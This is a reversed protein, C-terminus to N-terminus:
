EVIFGKGNFKGVEGSDLIYREGVKLRKVDVRGNAGIPPRKAGANRDFSTSSPKAGFGLIGSSGPTVEIMGSAEAQAAARELAVEFTLTKNEKVMQRATEAVYIAARSVAPDNKGASSMPGNRLVVEAAKIEQEKPLNSAGGTDGGAKRLHRRHTEHQADRVAQLKIKEANQSATIAARRERGSEEIQQQELRAKDAYQMAQDNLMQIIDPDYGNVELMDIIENPIVESGSSDNLKRARKIQFELESQNMVSGFISSVAQAGKTIREIRDTQNQEDRRIIESEKNDIETAAKLMDSAAEPFGAAAFKRGYFRLPDANSEISSGIGEADIKPTRRQGIAALEAAASDAVEQRRQEQELEFQATSAQQEMLKAQATQQMRTTFSEMGELGIKSLDVVPM